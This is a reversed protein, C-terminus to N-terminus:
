RPRRPLTFGAFEPGSAAAEAFFLRHGRWAPHIGLAEAAQRLAPEHEAWAEAWAREGAHLLAIATPAHLPRVPGELLLRVAEPDLPSTEPISM